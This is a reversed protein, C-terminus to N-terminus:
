CSVESSQASIIPKGYVQQGAALADVLIQRNEELHQITHPHLRAHWVRRLEQVPINQHSKKGAALLDVLELMATPPADVANYELGALTRAHRIIIGLAECISIDRRTGYAVAFRLLQLEPIQTPNPNNSSLNPLSM